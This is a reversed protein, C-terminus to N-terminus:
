TVPAMTSTLPPRQASRWSAAVAVAALAVLLADRVGTVVVASLRQQTLARFHYPFEVQTVLASAGVLWAAARALRGQDVLLVACAAALVWLEYQPSLVPAVALGAAVTALSLWAVTALSLAARRRVTLTLATVVAAVQAVETLVYAAVHVGSPVGAPALNLSGFSFTQPLIRGHAAAILMLVVAWSSEIELPRDGHYSALSTVMPSLAGGVLLAVTAVALVCGAGALTRGRGRSRGVLWVALPVVPWLKALVGFAWVAGGAVHRGDCLLVFGAVFVAAVVMDNRAVSVPGILPVAILWLWLARRRTAGRLLVAVGADLVAMLGVWAVGFSAPTGGLWRAAALFPLSGPPYEYLFTKYPTEGAVLHGAAPWYHGTLDGTLYASQTWRDGAPTLLGHVVIAVLIARTALWFVTPLM